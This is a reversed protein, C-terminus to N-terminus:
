VEETSEIADNVYLRREKLYQILEPMIQPSIGSVFESWTINQMESDSSCFAVDCIRDVIQLTAILTNYKLTGRFMRFEITNSNNLNVCTYRGNSPNKASDLIAKPDDKRGYRAAWREMQRSTRRSFRLMENWHTEVFFLIRAITDEQQETTNGLSDRNVHIHLGCTNAQHSYYGMRIAKRMVEAWPMATQHYQLTMPHTVIEFGEDLSGDHKCYILDHEANGIELLKRANCGDEGAGDIELEVGFFRNGKGYFIAEPKYYYDNIGNRAQCNFCSDCYPYEDEDERIYRADENLLLAGCRSCNTYFNEYCRTCLPHDDNGDNNDSWIRANCRQCILTNEELCHPCLEQGDFVTRQEVPHAEGCIECIFAKDM